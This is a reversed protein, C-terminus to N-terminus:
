IIIMKKENKQGELRKLNKKLLKLKIYEELDSRIKKYEKNDLSEGDHLIMERTKEYKDILKKVQEKIYVPFKAEEKDIIENIDDEMESFLEENEIEKIKKIDINLCNVNWAIQNYENKEETLYTTLSDVAKKYEENEKTKKLRSPVSNYLIHCFDLCYLTTEKIAQKFLDIKVKNKNYCQNNSLDLNYFYSESRLNEGEESKILKTRYIIRILHSFNSLKNNYLYFSNIRSNSIVKMIEDVDMNGINSSKFYIKILSNNKKLKKLFKVTSPINNNNLYLNKLKCYKNKLLEGLEYFAIDDLYCKNLYLSELKAKQKRYLNKLVILFSSIGSKLENSSLIITKLNKFNLLLHALFESSDERLYNFSINLEEISYNNFIPFFNLYYIYESKLLCTHFDIKKINKNFLLVKSFELLSNENLFIKSMKIHEIRQENRIPSFIISSFDSDIAAESLNYEFPIISLESNTSSKHIYEMLPSYKNQYYIYVSILLAKFLSIPSKSVKGIKGKFLFDTILDINPLSKKTTATTDALNEKKIKEENNLIEFKNNNIDLLFLIIPQDISINKKKLHNINKESFDNELLIKFNEAKKGPLEEKFENILLWNIWDSNKMKKMLDMNNYLFKNFSNEKETKFAFSFIVILINEIIESAFLINQTKVFDIINRLNKITYEENIEKDKDKIIENNIKNIFKKLNEDAKISITKKRKKLFIRLILCYLFTNIEKNILLKSDNILKILHKTDNM